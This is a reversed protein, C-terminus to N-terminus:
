GPQVLRHRSRKSEVMHEDVHHRYDFVQRVTPRSLDGRHDRQTREGISNYYSNFLFGFRPDFVEYGPKHHKLIMEEFFWTVHAINWKAPSVDVTPQPIYDEVELPECQYETFSRVRQYFERLESVGMKGTSTGQMQNGVM